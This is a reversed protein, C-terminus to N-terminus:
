IAGDRQELPNRTNSGFPEELIGNADTHWEKGPSRLPESSAALDAWLRRTLNM